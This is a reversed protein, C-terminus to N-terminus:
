KELLVKFDDLSTKQFYELSKELNKIKEENERLNQAFDNIESIKPLLKNM